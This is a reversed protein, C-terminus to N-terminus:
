PATADGTQGPASAETCKFGEHSSVPPVVSDHQRQSDRRLIISNRSTQRIRFFFHRWTYWLYVLETWSVTGKPVTRGRWGDRVDSVGSTWSLQRAWCSSTKVTNPGCTSVLWSVCRRTGSATRRAGAERWRKMLFKFDSPDERKMAEALEHSLLSDLAREALLVVQIQGRFRESSENRWIRKDHRPIKELVVADPVIETLKVEYRWQRLKAM